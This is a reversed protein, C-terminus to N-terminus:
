SFPRIFDFVMGSKTFARTIRGETEIHDLEALARKAEWKERSAKIQGKHEERYKRMYEKREEKTM